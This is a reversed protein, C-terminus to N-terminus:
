ISECLSQVVTVNKDQLDHSHVAPCGERTLREPVVVGVQALKTTGLPDSGVPGGPVRIPRLRYTPRSPRLNRAQVKCVPCWATFIRTDAVGTM